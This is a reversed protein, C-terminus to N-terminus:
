VSSMSGIMIENYKKYLLLEHILSQLLEASADVLLQIKSKMRPIRSRRRSRPEVDIGLLRTPHSLTAMVTLTSSPITALRSHLREHVVAVPPPQVKYLVVLLHHMNLLSVIRRTMRSPNLILTSQYDLVVKSYPKPDVYGNTMTNLRRGNNLCGLPGNQVFSKKLKRHIWHVNSNVLLFSM